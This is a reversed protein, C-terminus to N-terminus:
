VAHGLLHEHRARPDHGLDDLLPDLAPAIQIELGNATFRPVVAKLLYQAAASHAFVRKRVIATADGGSRARLLLPCLTPRTHSERGQLAGAHPRKKTNSSLRQM